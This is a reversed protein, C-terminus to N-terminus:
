SCSTPLMRSFKGITSMRSSSRSNMQDSELQEDERLKRDDNILLTFMVSHLSMVTHSRRYVTETLADAYASQM